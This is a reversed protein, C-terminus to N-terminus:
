RERQLWTAADASCLSPERSMQELKAFLWADDAAALRQMLTQDPGSLHALLKEETVAGPGLNGTDVGLARHARAIFLTEVPSQL